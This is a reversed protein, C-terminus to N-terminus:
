LRIREKLQTIIEAQKKIVTELQENRARLSCLEEKQSVSKIDEQMSVRLNIRELEATTALEKAVQSKPNSIWFDYEYKEGSVEDIFSLTFNKTHKSDCREINTIIAELTKIKTATDNMQKVMREASYFDLWDTPQHTKLWSVCIAVAIILLFIIGEM